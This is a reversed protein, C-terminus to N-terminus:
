LSKYAAFGAETLTVGADRKPGGSHEALGANQLSTFVGKDEADEIICDAWVWGIDELTEPEACNVTTFESRAIKRLMAAQLPTVNM